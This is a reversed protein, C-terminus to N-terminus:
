GSIPFRVLQGKLHGVYQLSHRAIYVVDGPTVCQSPSTSLPLGGLRYAELVLQSCFFSDSQNVRCLIADTSAAAGAVSYSRGLFRGASAVIHAAISPTMSPNRYAVALTDDALAAALTRITVGSGIAEIVQQGGIYLAAHSVTSATAIRITRSVAASTTSLILDATSLADPGISRGGPGPDLPIERSLISM